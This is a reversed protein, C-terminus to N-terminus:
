ARVRMLRYVSLFSSGCGLLLGGFILSLSLQLPFFKLASNLGQFWGSADVELRFLEFGGRLIALSLCGGFGGLIAGELLYPTAIFSGTAGILQLIEIEERRSYLSLQITNAIITMTALALILGIIVAGLEVYRILISLTEIWERSYRVHDVGPLKMLRDALREVAKGSQFEPAIGLVFSAPLPNEGLGDLLSSEEPFERHFDDLAQKQSMFSLSHVAQEQELQRQLRSVTGQPIDNELYVIVEIDEQLVGAVNKLNLYLLFFIGFCTITFATTVIGILVNSRNTKLSGIAEGILFWIRKM